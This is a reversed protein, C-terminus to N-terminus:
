VFVFSLYAEVKSAFSGAYIQGTHQAQLITAPSAAVTSYDWSYKGSLLGAWM